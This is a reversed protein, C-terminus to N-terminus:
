APYQHKAALVVRQDAHEIEGLDHAAGELAGIEAVERERRMGAATVHRLSHRQREFDRKSLELEVADFDIDLGGVQPREPERLADPKRALAERATVHLDCAAPAVVDAECYQGLVPALQTALM